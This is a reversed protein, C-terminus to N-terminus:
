NTLIMQSVIVTIIRIVTLLIHQSWEATPTFFFGGVRHPWWSHRDTITSSPIRTASLDTVLIKFHDHLRCCELKARVSSCPHDSLGLRIWGNTQDLVLEQIILDRSYEEFQEQSLCVGLRKITFTSFLLPQLDIVNLSVLSLCSNFVGLIPYQFNKFQSSSSIRSWLRIYSYIYEQGMRPSHTDGGQYIGLLLQAEHQSTSSFFWHFFTFFSCIHYTCVFIRFSVERCVIWYIFLVGM